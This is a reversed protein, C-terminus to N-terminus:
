LERFAYAEVISAAPQYGDAFLDKVVQIISYPIDDATLPRASRLWVKASWNDAM